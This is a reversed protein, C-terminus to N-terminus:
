EIYTELFKVAADGLQKNVAAIARNKKQIYEKQAAHKQTNKELRKQELDKVVEGYKWGFTTALKGLTTVPRDERISVIRLANPVVLKKINEYKLQKM